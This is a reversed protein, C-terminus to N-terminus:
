KSRKVEVEFATFTKGTTNGEVEVYAGAEARGHKEKIKTAKTVAVERGSVVWIGALDQPVKEIIGYIKSEYDGHERYEGARRGEHDGALATGAAIFMSLLTAIAIFGAKRCAMTINSEEVFNRTHSIM